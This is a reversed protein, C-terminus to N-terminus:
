SKKKKKKKKKPPFPHKKKKKKKKKKAPPFRTYKVKIIMKKKKTTKKINKKKKKKKIKIKIIALGIRMPFRGSFSYFFFFEKFFQDLDGGGFPRVCWEYVCVWLVLFFPLGM